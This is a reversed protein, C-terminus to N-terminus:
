LFTLRSYRGAITAAADRLQEATVSRIRATIEDITSVTGFHM